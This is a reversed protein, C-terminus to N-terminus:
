GSQALNAIGPSVLGFHALVRQRMPAVTVELKDKVIASVM